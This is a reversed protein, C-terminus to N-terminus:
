DDGFIRDGPVVPGLRGCDALGPGALRDGPVDGLGQGGPPEEPQDVSFAAFQDDPPQVVRAAPVLERRQVIEPPLVQARQVDLEASFAAPPSGSQDNPRGAVDSSIKQRSRCGRGTDSASALVTDAAAPRM